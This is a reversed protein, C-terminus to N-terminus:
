HLVHDSRSSPADSATVADPGADAPMSRPEDGAAAGPGVVVRNRGQRKAEYLLTDAIEFAKDFEMAEDLWWAGASITVALTQEGARFPRESISRRLRQAVTGARERGVSPMYVVFEEGGFRGLVDGSRLEGQLRRATQVLVDDGVTHGHADNVRKFHDIDFVILVGGDGQAQRVRAASALEHFGRRNLAGTLSDRIAASSLTAETMALSRERAIAGGIILAGCLNLGAIMLGFRRLFSVAVEFPLAFAGLLYVCIMAGLLTLSRFSLGDRPLHLRGWAVGAGGALVMGVVGAIAGPGGISLRVATGTALAVLMALPGAFAGAFAVALHRMDVIVGPALSIPHMMMALAALGFLLGLTADRSRGKPLRRCVLGYAIGVSAFAVMSMLLASLDALVIPM